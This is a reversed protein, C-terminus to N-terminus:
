CRHYAPIVQSGSFLCAGPGWRLLNSAGCTSGPCCRREPKLSRVLWPHDQPVCDFGRWLLSLVLDKVQQAMLSSRILKNPPWLNRKLLASRLSWRFPGCFSLSAPVRRPPRPPKEAAGDATPRNGSRLQHCSPQTHGPSAPEQHRSFRSESAEPQPPAM